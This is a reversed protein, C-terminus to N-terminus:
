LNPDESTPTPPSARIPDPTEAPPRTEPPPPPTAPTLATSPAQRGSQLFQQELSDNDPQLTQLKAGSKKRAAAAATLGEGAPRENLLHTIRKEVAKLGSQIKVVAAVTKAGPVMRARLDQLTDNVLGVRTWQMQQLRRRSVIPDGTPLPAGEITTILDNYIGILEDAAKDSWPAQGLEASQLLYIQNRALPRLSSEFDAWSLQRRSSEGMLFLTEPLWAPLNSGSSQRLKAIGAEARRYFEQAREFNGVRAYAAALRAPMEGQAIEVPLSGSRSILDNLDAVVQPDDGLAEHCFSLRYLAMAQLRPARGTTAGVVQRYRAAAESWRKLGELARGSNLLAAQSWPSASNQQTFRDFHDLAGAFNGSQLADVGARYDAPAETPVAGSAHDALGGSFFSSVKSHLSSCGVSLSAVAILAVALRLPSRFSRIM